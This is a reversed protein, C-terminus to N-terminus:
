LYPQVLKLLKKGSHQNYRALKKLSPAFKKLQAPQNAIQKLLKAAKVPDEQVYGLNYEHILDLNGDEGGAVHTTAFFPTLTAAAEFITNPGAKGVVLDASQMYHNLEKTFPIPLITLQKSETRAIEAWKEVQEFLYQNHGCSVILQLPKKVSFLDPLLQLISHTGESGSTLLFTLKQPDLGLSKRITAVAKKPQYEPRVFWGTVDFHATPLYEHCRRALEEDFVCSTQAKDSVNLSTFTRPDSIISIFPINQFEPYQEFCPHFGYHTTVILKPKYESLAKKLQPYHTARLYQLILNKATPKSQSRFVTKMLSPQFRYLLRYAHYSPDEFTFTKCSIKAALLAAEVSQAISAHGEVSSLILIDIKKPTM